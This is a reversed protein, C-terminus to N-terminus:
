EALIMLLARYPESVASRGEGLSRRANMAPQEDSMTLGHGAALSVQRDRHGAGGPGEAEAQDRQELSVLPHRPDHADGAAREVRRGVAPRLQRVAPPVDTVGPRERLCEAAGVHHYM